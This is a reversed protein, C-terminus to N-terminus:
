KDRGKVFDNLFFGAIAGLVPALIYTALPWVKWSLGSLAGAIAPNLVATGSVYSATIFAIILGIFVGAGATFAASLRDQGRRLYNAFAFGVIATGLLEAFFVYWEKGSAVTAVSYLSAGSTTASTAQSGHVFASLTVYAVAAGFVQFIIYGIARLWSIRQTVWAAITTAPNVYSGSTAGVLLVVGIFAFFIYLPQGQGVIYAATILFTGIFEAVLARWFSYQRISDSFSPTSTSAAVTTVTTRTTNSSSSSKTNATPKKNSTAKKATGAKKTAM